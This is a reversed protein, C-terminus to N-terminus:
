VKIKKLERQPLKLARLANAVVVLSAGVDALVAMWMNGLGFLALVLILLKLGVAFGINQLVIKHTHASLAFLYPLKSLSNDMLTVDAAERAVDTGAQGLSIGLNAQALALGDNIGDGVMAVKQGQNQAATLHTTKEEPTQRSFVKTIGVKAAFLKASQANDGTLLMLDKNQQKALIHLAKAANPRLEDQVAFLALVADQSALCSISYGQSEFENVQIQWSDKDAANLHAQKLLWPFNGLFYNMGQWHGSVGGNAHDKVATFEINEVPAYRQHIAQSTPHQSHSALAAALKLNAADASVVQQIIPKGLTLTGTKDFAIVNVTRAQELHAGSKILIGQKAAHALGAAVTVPAALVLACPCAIVLLVLASYIASLWTHDTFLPLLVAAALALSFVIPTYIAAFKDIWREIPAQQQQANEILQIMKALATEQAAQSVVFTISGTLNITGALIKSGAQKEVPLSEGTFAAEDVSTQGAQIVGDLPIREGPSVRVLTGAPIAALDVSQWNDNLYALATQPTLSLLQAISNRAKDVTRAEILDALTFLVMVMAAESWQGIIFAGTVAVTMLSNVNLRRNIISNWGLKYTRLGGLAIAALALAGALWANGTLWDAIEAGFALAAAAGLQMYSTAKQQKTASVNFGNSNLKATIPERLNPAASIWIQHDALHFELRQIAFDALLKRIQREESPCDLAPITLLFGTEQHQQKTKAHNHEHQHQHNHSM